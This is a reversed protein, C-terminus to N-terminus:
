VVCLWSAKAAQVAESGQGENYLKVPALPRGSTTDVLMATASTGDIAVASVNARIDEPLAAILHFLVDKWAEAWDSQANDAYTLKYDAISLGQEDIVTVRAGSTGFDVGMFLRPHATYM